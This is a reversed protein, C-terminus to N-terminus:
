AIYMGGEVAARIEALEPETCAVSIEDPDGLVYGSLSALQRRAMLPRGRGDLDDNAAYTHTVLLYPAGAMASGSAQSGVVSLHPIQGQVASGIAASAGGLAGGVNGTLLSIGASVVNALTSLKAVGPQVYHSLPCDIGVQASSRVMIIEREQNNVTHIASLTLEATGSRIDATIRLRLADAEMLDQPSLAILGWPPYFVEYATFPALQMYDGREDAQPHRFDSGSIDLDYTTTNYSTQEPYSGAATFVAATANVTVPGIPITTVSGTTHLAWASGPVLLGCPWFRISSIYQLPDIAVKAEPYEVAGFEGLVANYYTPAYIAALFTELQAATFAYYRTQGDGIIGLIYHGLGQAISPTAADLSWMRPLSIKLRHYRSVTPYLQDMVNGDYSSASRYVYTTNTLLERRWSALADVQLRSTWIGGDNSWGAIRYWRRFDSIFAYNYGTPLGQEQSWDLVIEPALLDLTENAHCSVTLGSGSPVATSRLRKSFTYFQVNFAM